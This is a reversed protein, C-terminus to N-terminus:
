GDAAGRGVFPAIEVIVPCRLVFNM